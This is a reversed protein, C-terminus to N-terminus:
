LRRLELVVGPGLELRLALGADAPSDDRAPEGSRTLEVFPLSAACTDACDGLRQRWRSFTSMAIGERDCFAQQTLGSDAQDAFITRWQETSRRIRIGSM